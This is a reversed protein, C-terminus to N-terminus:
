LPKVSFKQGGVSAEFMLGSTTATFIAVGSQYKATKAAGKALAVASVQATLSFDGSMFDSFSKPSEFFIIEAFKQGGLQVGVTVQTMKATAVPKGGREFVVGSGHAGGVGVAAKGIGPFVAYGVATDVFRKLDPDTKLFVALTQRAETIPDVAQVPRLLGLSLAAATVGFAVVHKIKM